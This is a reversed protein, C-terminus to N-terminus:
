TPPFRDLIESVAQRILQNLDKNPDIPITAWGHWILRGTLPNVFDIVLTGREVTALSLPPVIYGWSQYYSAYSEIIPQNQYVYATRIHSGGGISILFEADQLSAPDYSRNALATRVARQAEKITFPNGLIAEGQDSGAEFAEEPRQLFAFSRLPLFDFTPDHVSDGGLRTSARRGERDLRQLDGGEVQREQPVSPLPRPTSARASPSASSGAASGDAPERPALATVLPTYRAVIEYESRGGGVQLAVFHPGPREVGHEATALDMGPVVQDVLVRQAPNKLLLQLLESSAAATTRRAEVTVRGPGPINVRYNDVCNQKSCDLEGQVRQDLPLLEAPALNVKGLDSPQGGPVWGDYACGGGLVLLAALPVLRLLLPHLSSRHVRRM